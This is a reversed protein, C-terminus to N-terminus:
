FVTASEKFSIVVTGDEQISGEISHSWFVFVILAALLDDCGLQQILWNEIFSMAVGGQHLLRDSHQFSLDFGQLRCDIARHGRNDVIKEMKERISNLAWSLTERDGKISVEEGSDDCGLFPGFIEKLLQNLSFQESLPEKAIKLVTSM